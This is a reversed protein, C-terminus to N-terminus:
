GKNDAKKNSSSTTEDSIFLAKAAKGQMYMSTFMCVYMCVYVDDDDHREKDMGM